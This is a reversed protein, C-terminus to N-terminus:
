SRSVLISRDFVVVNTKKREQNTDLTVYWNDSTILLKSVSSVDKIMITRWSVDPSTSHFSKFHWNSSIPSKKKKIKKSHFDDSRVIRLIKRLDEIPRFIMRYREIRKNFISDFHVRRPRRWESRIRKWRHASLKKSSIVDVCNRQMKDVIKFEDTLKLFFISYIM